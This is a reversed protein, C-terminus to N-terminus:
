PALPGILLASSHSGLLPDNRSSPPGFSWPGATASASPPTSTIPSDAAYRKSGFLSFHLSAPFSTAARCSARAVRKSSPRTNILPPPTRSPFFHFGASDPSSHSGVVM